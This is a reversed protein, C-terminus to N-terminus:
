ESQCTSSPYPPGEKGRQFLICTRKSRQQRWRITGRAVHGFTIFLARGSYTKENRAPDSRFHVRSVRAVARGERERLIGLDGSDDKRLHVISGKAVGSQVRGRLLFDHVRGEYILNGQHIKKVKQGLFATRKDFMPPHDRVVEEGGPIRYHLTGMTDIKRSTVGTGFHKRIRSLKQSDALKGRPM